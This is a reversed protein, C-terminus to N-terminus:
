LHTLSARLPTLLVNIANKEGPGNQTKVGQWEALSENNLTQVAAGGLLIPQIYLSHAFVSLFAREGIASGLPWRRNSKSWM